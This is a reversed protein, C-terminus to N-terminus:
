EDGGVRNVVVRRARPLTMGLPTVLWERGAGPPLALRVPGPELQRTARQIVGFWHRFDAPAVGM